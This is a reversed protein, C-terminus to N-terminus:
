EGSKLKVSVLVLPVIAVLVVVVVVSSHLYCVWALPALWLIDIGLISITVPLHKGLRKSAKQFGHTNHPETFKLGHRIRKILSFTTDVIFVALLVIWVWFSASGNTASAAILVAFMYGLFGSGVDGMFIKAPPWNMILFGLASSAVILSVLLVGSQTSHLFIAAGLTGVVVAEGGSLGDIGDMFNYLNIVWVMIFLAIANCLIPVSLVFFGFNLSNIGGLFYLATGSALAHVLARKKADIHGHDDLWGIGAIMGGGLSFALATNQGLMGLKVTIAMGTLVALVIAAGGGRPTPVTHMSRENAIDLVKKKLAYARIAITTLLSLITLFPLLYRLYHM